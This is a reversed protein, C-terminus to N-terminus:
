SCTSKGVAPGTTEGRADANRHDFFAASAATIIALVFRSARKQLQMGFRRFPKVFIQQLLIERRGGTGIQLLTSDFRQRESTAARNRAPFSPHTRLQASSRPYLRPSM